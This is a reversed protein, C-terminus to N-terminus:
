ARFYCFYYYDVVIVANIQASLDCCSRTCSASELPPQFKFTKKEYLVVHVSVYSVIIITIIRLLLSM